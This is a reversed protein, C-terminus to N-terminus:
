LFAAWGIYMQALNAPDTATKILEDVQGAISLPLGGGSIGNGKLKRDINQLIKFAKQNEVEPGRNPAHVQHKTKGWECLPDYLFTELLSMLSERNARLM